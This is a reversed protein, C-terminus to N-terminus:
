DARWEVTKVKDKAQLEQWYQAKRLKGQSWSKVWHQYSPHFPNGSVGGPINTWAEVKPGLEVVMKWAAGHSGKNASVTKFSGSMKEKKASFGPIRAIHQIDLININEWNWASGYNGFRETLEMWMDNFSRTVIDQFSEKVEKTSVDDIWYLNEPNKPPSHSALDKILEITRTAQPSLHRGEEWLQDRWISNRLHKWWVYYLSPLYSDYLVQYDWSKLEKIAKKQLESLSKEKLGKLMYSLSAEAMKDRVDNQLDQMGKVTHKNKAELVEKIRKGRYSDEYYWGMYHKYNEDVAAQNASRVFGSKPNVIAPLEDHPIYDLWDNQPQSGSMIYSGQGRKRKPIKGNHTISINDKDACIFNQAPASFLKTHKRCDNLTKSRNLNLFAQLETSEQHSIWALVLGKHGKKEIVVGQHTWLTPITVEYNGRIRIVEDIVKVSRWENEYKYESFDKRFEVEYFDMPDMTANTVAWAIDQNHGLIIGPAGPFAQVM